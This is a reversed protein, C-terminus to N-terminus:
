PEPRYNAHMAAVFEPLEQARLEPTTHLRYVRPRRKPLRPLSLPGPPELGLALEDRASRAHARIADERAAQTFFPETHGSITVDLWISGDPLQETVTARYRPVSV